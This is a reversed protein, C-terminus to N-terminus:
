FSYNYTISGMFNKSAVVHSLVKEIVVNIPNYPTYVYNANIGLSHHKVSYSINASFTLNSQANAFTSKNILYGATIQTNLNKNKLFQATTGLNIGYTTYKSTDQVYQNYIGSTTFNIGHRVLGLTYNLSASLNHSSTFHTTAPNKDNLLMYNISTSITHSKTANFITYSPMLSFTHVQQNLRASDTLHITGDKQDLFYGSYNFNINLKSSPMANVNLNSVFTNLQSTLDKKLNNHQNSVTANINLKSKLLNLNNMWNILEIDNLM